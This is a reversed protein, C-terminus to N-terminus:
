GALASLSKAVRPRVVRKEPIDVPVGTAPNRGTRAARTTVELNIIGHIEFARGNAIELEAIQKLAALNQGAQAKSIQAMAALRDILESKKM